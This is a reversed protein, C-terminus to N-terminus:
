QYKKNYDFLLALIGFLGLLMIGLHDIGISKQGYIVLGICVIFIALVAMSKLIKYM